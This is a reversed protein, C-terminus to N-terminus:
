LEASTARDREEQPPLCHEQLPHGKARENFFYTVTLGLTGASDAYAAHWHYAPVYLADGPCLLFLRAEPLPQGRLSLGVAGGFHRPGEAAVERCDCPGLSGWAEESSGGTAAFRCVDEGMGLADTASPPAVVLRKCGSLQVVLGGGEAFHLESVSGNGVFLSVSHPQRGSGAFGPLEPVKAPLSAFLPALPAPRSGRGAPTPTQHVAVEAYAPDIGQRPSALYDLVASVTWENYKSSTWPMAVSDRGGLARGLVQGGGHYVEM